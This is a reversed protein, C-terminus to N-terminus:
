FLFKEWPSPTAGNAARLELATGRAIPAAEDQQEGHVTAKMAVTSPSPSLIAQAHVTGRDDMHKRSPWAFQAIYRAEDRALPLENWLSLGKASHAAWLLGVM